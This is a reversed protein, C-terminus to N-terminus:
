THAVAEIASNVAVLKSRPGRAVDWFWLASPSNRDLALPGRPGSAARDLAIYALGDGVASFGGFSGLTIGYALQRTAGSTPRQYLSYSQAVNSACDSTLYFLSGDAKWTAPRVWYGGAIEDIKAGNTDLVLMNAGSGDARTATVAIAHGDPAALPTGLTTYTTGVTIAAGIDEEVGQNAIFLTSRSDEARAAYVLRGGDLWQPGFRSWEDAVPALRTAGGGAAPVTYITLRPPSFSGEDVTFAITKGDPSFAPEACTRGPAALQTPNGGNGDITWLASSALADEPNAGAETRCFAIAGTTPSVALTTETEPSKTLNTAQGNAFTWIDGASLYAIPAAPTANGSPQTLMDSTTTIPSTKAFELVLRTPNDALMVRFPMPQKLGVVLAAGVDANAPVRYTVSTLLTGSLAVTPTVLSAQFRDDHLWGDLNLLLTYGASAASNTTAADAAASLCRATAHPAASDGPVNLALELRDFKPEITTTIATVRASFRGGALDGATQDCLSFGKLAPDPAPTPALPTPLPEASATPASTPANTPATTPAREETTPAAVVVTAVPLATAALAITTSRLREEEAISIQTCGTLMLLCALLLPRVAHHRNM